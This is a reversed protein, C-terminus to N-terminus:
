KLAKLRAIKESIYLKQVNDPQEGIMTGLYEELTKIAQQKDETLEFIRAAGTYGVNEFGKIKQLHTYESRAMDYNGQAEEAQAIAFVVLPYLPNEKDLEEIVERYHTLAVKHEGKETFTRGLEIKAWKAAATGSYDDIVSQLAQAKGDGEAKQAASLASSSRIMKKEQYSDFLSWFIVIASIVGIIIYIKKQNRRVYEVVVPPLNLQELVGSLDAKDREDVYKKDFVSQDAM